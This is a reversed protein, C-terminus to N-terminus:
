SRLEANSFVALNSSCFRIGATLKGQTVLMILWSTYANVALFINKKLSLDSAGKFFEM